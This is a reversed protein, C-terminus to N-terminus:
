LVEIFSDIVEREAFMAVATKAAALDEDFDCLIEWQRHLSKLEGRLFDHDTEPYKLAQRCIYADAGIDRLKEAVKSSAGQAWAAIKQAKDRRRARAPNPRYESNVGLFQLAEKFDVGHLLEIFRVVDGGAGCSRCLFVQKDQNVFLSPHRDDHFPCLGVFETGARRLEVGEREIVVLIDPRNEM